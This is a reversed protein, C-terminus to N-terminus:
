RCCCWSNNESAAGRAVEPIAAAILQPLDPPVVFRVEPYAAGPVSQPPPDRAILIKHCHRAFLDVVAVLWTRDGELVLARHGTRVFAPLYPQTLSRWLPDASLAVTLRQPRKAIALIDCHAVSAYHPRMKPESEDGACRDLFLLNFRSLHHVLYALAPQRNTSLMAVTLPGLKALM